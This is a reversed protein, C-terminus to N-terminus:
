GVHPVELPDESFDADPWWLIRTPIIRLPIRVFYWKGMLQKMLPGWSTWKGSPQFRYIKEWVDEIGDLTTIAGAVADGQVLVAPPNTLKSARPESFLLSVRPNRRINAAKQSLGISTAALFECRDPYYVATIPWTAPTGDKGITTFETTRFERFVAEVDAPVEFHAM